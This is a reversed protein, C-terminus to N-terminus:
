LRSDCGPNKKTPSPEPKAESAANSPTKLTAKAHRIGNPAAASRQRRLAAQAEVANSAPQVYGTKARKAPCVRSAASPVSDPSPLPKMSAPPEPTIWAVPPSVASESAHSSPGRRPFYEALPRGVAM